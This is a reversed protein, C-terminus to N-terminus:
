RAPVANISIEKGGDITATGDIRANALPSQPPLPGIQGARRSSEGSRDALVMGSGGAVSSILSGKFVVRKELTRNTGSVEFLCNPKWVPAGEAQPINKAGATAAEASFSKDTQTAAQLFGSYVSGDKDVVRIRNGTQELDFEALVLSNATSAAELKLAYQAGPVTEARVFRQTATVATAGAAPLAARSAIQVDPKADRVEPAQAPAYTVPPLVLTAGREQSSKSSSSGEDAAAAPSRIQDALSSGNTLGVTGHAEVGEERSQTSSFEQAVVGYGGGLPALSNLSDTAAPHSNSIKQAIRDDTRVERRRPAESPEANPAGSLRSAPSSGLRDSESENPVAPVTRSTEGTEFALETQRPHEPSFVLLATVVALFALAGGFALGRWGGSFLDEWARRRHRRRRRRLTRREHLLQRTAPPMEAPGGADARRKGAYARLLKEIEREPEM